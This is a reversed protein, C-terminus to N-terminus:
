PSLLGRYRHLPNESFDSYGDEVLVCLRRHFGLSEVCFCAISEATPEKRPFSSGVPSLNASPFQRFGARLAQVVSIAQPVAM